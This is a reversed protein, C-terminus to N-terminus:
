PPASNSVSLVSADDVDLLDSNDRQGVSAVFAHMDCRHNAFTLNAMEARRVPRKARAAGTSGDCVLTSGSAAPRALFAGTLLGPRSAGYALHTGTAEGEAM